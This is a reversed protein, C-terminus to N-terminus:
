KTSGFRERLREERYAFIREVDKRVFLAEILRGGIVDYRVEDEVLTGGDKPTFRHTHVWAKYPGRRQEDAFRRPPDWETIESRWRLPIGHVRLQYDILTGPAMAIPAPTLVRFHLFPPTIAELNHADAFFPFVKDVSQPLWLESRYLFPLVSSKVTM